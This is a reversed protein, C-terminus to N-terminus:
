GNDTCTHLLDDGWSDCILSCVGEPNRWYGPKCDCEYRGYAMENPRGDIDCKIQCGDASMIYSRLWGGTIITNIIEPVPCTDIHRCDSSSELTAVWTTGDRM